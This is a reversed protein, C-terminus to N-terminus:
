TLESVEAANRMDPLSGRTLRPPDESLDMGEVALVFTDFKPLIM